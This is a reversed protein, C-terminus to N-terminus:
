RKILGKKYMLWILPLEVRLKRPKFLVEKTAMKSEGLCDDNGLASCTFFKINKYKKLEAYRGTDRSKLYHQLEYSSCDIHRELLSGEYRGNQPFLAMINERVVHCNADFCNNQNTGRSSYGSLKQDHKTFVIAIPMNEMDLKKNSLSPIRELATVLQPLPNQVEPDGDMVALLCDTMDLARVKESGSNLTFMEGPIDYFYMYGLDGLRFGIPQWSLKWADDAATQAEVYDGTSLVYRRKTTSGSDTRKREEADDMKGSNEDIAIFKVEEVTQKAKNKKGFTELIRNLIVPVAYVGMSNGGNVMNFISSLYITKGSKPFGAVAVNMNPLKEYKEPIILNNREIISRGALSKSMRVLDSSCVRLVKGELNQDTIKIQKEEGDCGVVATEGRAFKRPLPYLKEGCYPCRHDGIVVKNSMEEAENCFDRDEITYDSEDVLLYYASYASNVFTLRYDYHNTQDMPITKKVIDNNRGTAILTIIEDEEFRRQATGNKLFDKVLVPKAGAKKVIGLQINERLLPYLVEIKIKSKKEIIRYSIIDKRSYNIIFKYSDEILPTANIDDGRVFAIVGCGSLEENEIKLYISNDCDIYNNEKDMSEKKHSYWVIPSYTNSTWDPFDVGNPTFYVKAGCYQSYIEKPVHIQVCMANGLEDYDQYLYFTLAKDPKDDPQNGMAVCKYHFHFESM